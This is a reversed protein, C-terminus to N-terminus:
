RMRYRTANHIAAASSIYVTTWETHSTSVDCDMSTNMTHSFWKHPIPALQVVQKLTGKILMSDMKKVQATVRDVCASGMM